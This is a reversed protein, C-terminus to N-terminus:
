ISGNLGVEISSKYYSTNDDKKILDTSVKYSNQISIDKMLETIFKDSDSKVTVVMKSSNNEVSILKSKYRNVRECLDVIIKAKMPYSVKKHHIEKLLKTRFSLDASKESLQKDIEDRQKSVVALNSKMTNVKAFLTSNINNLNQIDKDLVQTTYIYQYAPYALSLFLTVAAVQTLKGSPRKNFPPPRKFISLNLSDNQSDNYDKANIIMLTHLPNISVDSYNKGIVFELNTIPLNIYNRGFEAIGNIKGIDTGIYIQDVVNELGYARKAYQIIDNIYVFVESFIQM